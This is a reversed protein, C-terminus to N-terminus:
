RSDDKEFIYITDGLIAKPKLGRYYQYHNFDILTLRGRNGLLYYPRGVLFNVSIAHPGEEIERQAVDYNIGYIRPDVRGFYGLKIQDISERAMYKKLAPLDQGWDLNSDILWRHGNRSGGSAWNFYSLYNPFSTIAPVMYLITILSLLIRIRGNTLFNRDFLAGTTLFLLPFIPLM